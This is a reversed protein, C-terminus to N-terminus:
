IPAPPLACATASATGNCCYPQTKSVGACADGGSPYFCNQYLSELGSDFQGAYSTDKAFLGHNIKIRSGVPIKDNQSTAIDEGSQNVNATQPLFWSPPDEPPNSLLTINEGNVTSSSIISYDVLVGDRESQFLADILADYSVKSTNPDPTISRIEPADLVIQSTTTFSWNFDDKAPANGPGDSGGDKNGDFSNGVVDVVGDYPFTAENPSDAGGAPTAAKIKGDIDSNAPLCFVSRGCSNTGCMDDTVFEITKYGNSIKYEGTIAGSSDLVINTFGGTAIRKGSASTPDLAENFNMQVLINRAVTQANVPIVSVLQPPTLDLYTGVTFNWLYGGSISGTFLKAGDAKNINPGLFVSYNTNEEASGLVPPDFVFTKADGTFSVTVNDSSLAESQGKATKYIKVNDANLKGRSNEITGSVLSPINIQEFFTVIIKTNRAVDQQGRAPYHDKITRSLAGSYLEVNGRDTKIIQDGDGTLAGTLARLIFTTIAFASVIILLGIAANKLIKQAKAVKEDSGGSTMWLYGAYVILVFAIIGLVSFFVQLIRGIIIAIDTQAGFGAGTGVSELATQAAAPNAKLASALFVFLVIIFIAGTKPIIRNFSNKKM